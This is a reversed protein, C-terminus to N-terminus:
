DPRPRPVGVLVRYSGEIEVDGFTRSDIAGADPNDSCAEFREGRIHGVRKVLWFGPRHPHEFVRVQGRRVRKSRVAFLGDGAHLAPQMSDEAVVFLRVPRQRSPKGWRM